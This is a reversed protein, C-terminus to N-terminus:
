LKQWVANAGYVEMLSEEMQVSMLMYVNTILALLLLFFLRIPISITSFTLVLKQLHNCLLINGMLLVLVTPFSGDKKLSQLYKWGNRQLHLLKSIFQHCIKLLPMSVDTVIYSIAGKSMQFQFSLSIFTEGTALFRITVALRAKPCIAKHGGLVQNPTIDKETSRLIHLFDEHSMRMMEKFAATDEISLERIINNFYGKEERRKIWERTKGREWGREEGEELINLIALAAVAKRKQARAYNM